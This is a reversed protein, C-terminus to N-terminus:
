VKFDKEVENNWFQLCSKYDMQNLYYWRLDSKIQQIQTISDSLWSVSDTIGDSM